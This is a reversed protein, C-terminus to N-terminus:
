RIDVHVQARTRITPSVKQSSYYGQKPRSTIGVRQPQNKAIRNYNPNYRDLPFCTRPSQQGWSQRLLVLLCSEWSRESHTSRRLEPGTRVAPPISTFYYPNSKPRETPVCCRQLLWQSLGQSKRKEGVQVKPQKASLRTKENVTPKPSGSPGVM